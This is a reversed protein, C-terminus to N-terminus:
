FLPMHFIHLKLLGGNAMAEPVLATQDKLSIKFYVHSIPGKSQIFRCTEEATGSPLPTEEDAETSTALM